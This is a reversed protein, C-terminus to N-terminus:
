ISMTRLNICIYKELGITSAKQQVSLATLKGRKSQLDWTFAREGM